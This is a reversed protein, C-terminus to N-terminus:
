GWAGTNARGAVSAFSPKCQLNVRCQVKVLCQVEKVRFRSVRATPYLMSATNKFSRVTPRQLDNRSGHESLPPPPPPPRPHHLLCPPEPTLQTENSIPSGATRPRFPLTGTPGRNASVNEGKWELDVWREAEAARQSAMLQASQDGRPPEGGRGGGPGPRQPANPDARLSVQLTQAKKQPATPEKKRKSSAGAEADPADEESESSAAEGAALARERRKESEAAADMADLYHLSPRLQVVADLPTLHMADACTRLLPSSSCRPTLATETIREPPDSCFRTGCCRGTSIHIISLAHFSESDRIVGVMYKTLCPVENSELRTKELRRAEKKKSSPGSGSPGAGAGSGIGAGAGAGMEDGQEANYVAERVDLPLEVEVRNAKPRWRAGIGLGRPAASAPVPLPRSRPYIPYQFIQLSSTSPLATSLYVPLSALLEDDEGEAGNLGASTDAGASGAPAQQSSSPGAEAEVDQGGAPQEDQDMADGADEAPASSAPQEEPSSRDVYPMLSDDPDEQGLFLDNSAM